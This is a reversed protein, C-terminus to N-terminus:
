TKERSYEDLLQREAKTLSSMGKRHIKDLIRDVEEQKERMQLNYRQDITLGKSHMRSFQSDVLLFHPRTAIMYIFIGSPIAMCLIPVLNESLAAPYIAIALVMGVLGGGLHADHGINDSRSRIGYISILVYLLGFLWAPMPILGFFSISMGPFLAISAFIIGSIAGSAGVATYDGDRRHILLSFLNGGILSTFYVLLFKGVGLSYEVHDGFSYLALMNFGLHWWSVHLFGSTILRKYDRHVLLKEVEFEYKHFFSRNTLGIYSVVLNVILLILSM